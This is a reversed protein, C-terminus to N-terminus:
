PKSALGTRSCQQGQLYQKYMTCFAISSNSNQAHPSSNSAYTVKVTCNLTFPDRSKRKPFISFNLSTKSEQKLKL